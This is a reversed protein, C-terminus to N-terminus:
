YRPYKYFKTETLGAAGASFSEQDFAVSFEEEDNGLFDILEDLGQDATEQLFGAFYTLFEESLGQPPYPIGTLYDVADFKSKLPNYFIVVDEYLINESSDQGDLDEVEIKDPNEAEMLFSVEVAFNRKDWNIEYDYSFNAALAKDLIDLFGYDAM